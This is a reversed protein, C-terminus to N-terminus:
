LKNLKDILNKEMNNTVHLYIEQTTKGSSHGLRHQIQYLPVGLEALKSVHTHRFQHSHFRRSGIKRKKMMKFFNGVADRDIPRPTDSLITWFIWDDPKKGEINREIIERAEDSLSVFRNSSQTKPHGKEYRHGTEQMEHTTLKILTGDVNLGWVGDRQIYDKVQLGSAEGQRMGTLYLTKFYDLFDPRHIDKCYQWILELEEDTLLKEEISDAKSRDNKWSIPM